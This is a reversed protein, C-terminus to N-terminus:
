SVYERARRAQDMAILEAEPPRPLAEAWRKRVRGSKVQLTIITEDPPPAAM